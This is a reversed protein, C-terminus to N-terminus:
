LVRRSRDIAPTGGEAYRSEVIPVIDDLYDYDYYRPILNEQILCDLMRKLIAKRQGIDPLELFQSYLQNETRITKEGVLGALRIALQSREIQSDDAALTALARLAAAACNGNN